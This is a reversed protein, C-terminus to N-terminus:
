TYVKPNAPDYIEIVKKAGLTCDENLEQIVVPQRLGGRCYILKNSHATLSDRFWYPISAMKDGEPTPKETKELPINVVQRGETDTVTWGSLQSELLIFVASLSPIM